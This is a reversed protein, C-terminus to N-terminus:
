RSCGSLLYQPAIALNANALPRVSKQKRFEDVYEFDSDCKSDIRLKDCSRVDIRLSYNSFESSLGM